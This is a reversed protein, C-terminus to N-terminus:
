MNEYNIWKEFQKGRETNLCQKCFNSYFREYFWIKPGFRVGIERNCLSYHEKVKLIHIKSNLSGGKLYGLEYHELKIM